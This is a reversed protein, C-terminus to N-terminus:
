YQREGFIATGIRVMTSGHRLAIQWDGSMGISLENFEPLEPLLDKLYEMFDEARSFDSSIVEADDTNTAMAMLGRFRVNPYPPKGSPAAAAVRLLIDLIEEEYFGQKSEEQAVHLELLVDTVKGANRGWKDIEELLRVSDVSQVLDVYPLVMKLKNTQLHGIFHWILGPLPSAELEKVKKLLEQPRSEAFIRQGAAYAQRIAELPHFKSVAVLRTGEPLAKTISQISDEIM